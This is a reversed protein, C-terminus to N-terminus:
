VHALHERGFPLTADQLYEGFLAADSDGRQAIQESHGLHGDSPVELAQLGLAQERAGV